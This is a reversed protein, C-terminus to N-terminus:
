AKSLAIDAYSGSTDIVSSFVTRAVEPLTTVGNEICRLGNKLLPVMGQAVAKEHLQHAPAGAMIM